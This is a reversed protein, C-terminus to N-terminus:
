QRPRAIASLPGDAPGAWLRQGDTAIAIAGIQDTRLILAGHRRYRALVDAPVEPTHGTSLIAVRPRARDLLAQSSSSRGGHHPVKLVDVGGTQVYSEGEAGIDGTLLLRVEGLRLRLVLSADNESWSGPPPSAPPWLVEIEVGDWLRRFGQAVVRRRRLVAQGASARDEARAASGRWNEPGVWVEEVPFHRLLFPAGGVHDSHRHTLALLDLARTGKWWLFPAVVFEGIDPGVAMRSGGSDVALTRGNPSRLILCDGGGVDLATMHLRGDAAAGGTGVILGATALALLLVARGRRAPRRALAVAGCAYLGLLWVPPSTVRVDAAAVASALASSRLMGEAAAWAVRGALWALPPAWGSVLATVFGAVLAVSALPVAILNLVLGAPALRHFHYAMIPLVGIQAALSAALLLAVPGPLHRVWPTLVPVLWIIALTAVFSLQFAVDGIASPRWALLLLAAFGLLNAAEGRLSLALGLLLAGAMVAARSVPVDGGVFVTYLAIAAGAVLAVVPPAARMWRLGGILIGAVLAVQAGSLALVHYTGAVRFAEETESALGARDGLVMARVISASPGDGLEAQLRRRALERLRSIAYLPGDIRRHGESEMLAASKCAGVVHIGRRFFHAAADFGGPNRQAQPVNVRAWVSVREGQILAPRAAGGDVYVRARGTLAVVDGDLTAREVSVILLWRGGIEGPDQALTGHLQMLQPGHTTRASVWRRLSSGEYELREVSATASGLGLAAVWLATRAGRTGPRAYAITLTGAVLLLLVGAELASGDGFLAGAGFAAAALVLPSTAWGKVPPTGETAAPRM